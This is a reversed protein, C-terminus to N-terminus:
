FGLVSSPDIAFSILGLYFLINGIATEPVKSFDNGYTYSYTNDNSSQTQYTQGLNISDKSLVNIGSIINSQKSVAIPCAADDAIALAAVLLLCIM